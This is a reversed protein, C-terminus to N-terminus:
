KTIKTEIFENWKVVCQTALEFADKIGSNTEVSFRVKIIPSAGGFVLQFHRAGFKPNQDSHPRNSPKLHKLSNCIDGCVALCETQNVFSEVNNRAWEDVQSDNKIWDKLHFCNMFFAYLDDQYNDSTIYHIKGDNIEQIRIFWRNVRQYQERYSPSKEMKILKTPDVTIMEFCNNPCFSQPIRASFSRRKPM